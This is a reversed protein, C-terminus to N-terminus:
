GDTNLKARLHNIDHWYVRKCENDTRDFIQALEPYTSGRVRQYIVKKSFPDHNKLIESALENAENQEAGTEPHAFRQSAIMVVFSDPIDCKSLTYDVYQERIIRMRARCNDRFANHLCISYPLSRQEQKIFADAVADLALENKVDKRSIKYFGLKKRLYLFYPLVMSVLKEYLENEGQRIRQAYQNVLKFDM